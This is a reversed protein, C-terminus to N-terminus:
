RGGRSKAQRAAKEAEANRLADLAVWMLLESHPMRDGLEAVTM